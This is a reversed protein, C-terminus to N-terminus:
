AVFREAEELPAVMAAFTAADETPLMGAVLDPKVLERAEMRFTVPVAGAVTTVAGEALPLM